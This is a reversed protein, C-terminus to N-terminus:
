QRKDAPFTPELQHTVPNTMDIEGSTGQEPTSNIGQMLQDVNATTGLTNSPPTSETRNPSLQALEAEPLSTCKSIAGLDIKRDLMGLMRQAIEHAGEVKGEAKAEDFLKGMAEREQPMLECLEDMVVDRPKTGEYVALIYQGIAKSINPTGTKESSDIMNRIIEKAQRLFEDNPVAAHKLVWEFPAAQEHTSIETDDMAVLDILTYDLKLGSQLGPEQESSSGALSPHYSWKLPRGRNKKRCAATDHYLCIPWIIPKDRHGLAEYRWLLATGYEVFRLPMTRDLSSQHELIIYCPRNRVQGHYVIDDAISHGIAKQHENPARM